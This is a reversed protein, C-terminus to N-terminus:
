AHSISVNAVGSTPWAWLYVSSGVGPFLDGLETSASLVMMPVIPIGGTTDTPASDAATALLYFPVTSVVRAATVAGDSIKTAQGNPCSVDTNRAAM